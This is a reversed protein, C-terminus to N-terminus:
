ARKKELLYLVTPQTAEADATCVEQCMHLVGRIAGSDRGNIMKLMYMASADTDAVTYVCYGRNM